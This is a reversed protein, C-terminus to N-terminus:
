GEDRVDMAGEERLGRERCSARGIEFEHRMQAAAQPTYKQQLIQQVPDYPSAHALFFVITVILYAIVIMAMFRRITFVLLNSSMCIPLACTQVGTVKYDRIGDEAQFF